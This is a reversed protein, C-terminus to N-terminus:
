FEELISLWLMKSNGLGSPSYEERNDVSERLGISFNASEIVLALKVCYCSNM